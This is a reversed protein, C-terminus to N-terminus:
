RLFTMKFLILSLARTFKYAIYSYLDTSPAVLPFTYPFSPTQQVSCNSVQFLMVQALADIASIRTRDCDNYHSLRTVVTYDTTM